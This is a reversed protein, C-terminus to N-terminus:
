DVPQQENKEEEFPELRQIDSQVILPVVFVGLGFCGTLGITLLSYVLGAWLGFAQGATEFVSWALILCVPITWLLAGLVALGVILELIGKLPATLQILGLSILLITPLMARARWEMMQAASAALAEKRAAPSWEVEPRTQRGTEGRRGWKGKGPVAFASEEKVWEVWEDFSNFIAHDPWPPKEKDGAWTLHVQAVRDSGDLIEFLVDDQDFRRGIAKIPLDFLPHGSKLERRLEAELGLKDQELEIPGFPFPWEM